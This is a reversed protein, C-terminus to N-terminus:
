AGDEAAQGTTYTAACEASLETLRKVAMDQGVVEAQEAAMTEVQRGSEASSGEVENTRFTSRRACRKIGAQM